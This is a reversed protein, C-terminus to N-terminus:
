EPCCLRWCLSWYASRACRPLAGTGHPSPLPVLERGIKKSRGLFSIQRIYAIPGCVGYVVSHRVYERMQLVVVTLQHRLIDKFPLVNDLLRNVVRVVRERGHEGCYIFEELKSVDHPFRICLELSDVNVVEYRM